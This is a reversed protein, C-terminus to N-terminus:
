KMINNQTKSLCPLPLLKYVRTISLNLLCFFPLPDRSGIWGWLPVLPKRPRRGRINVKYSFVCYKFLHQILHSYIQIKIDALDTMLGSRVSFGRRSYCFSRCSRGELFAEERTFFCNMELLVTIILPVFGTGQSGRPRPNTPWWQVHFVEAAGYGWM